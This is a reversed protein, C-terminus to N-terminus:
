VTLGPDGASEPAGRRPLWSPMPEAPRDDFDREGTFRRRQERFYPEDPELAIAEDITDLAREEEGLQFQLEALTDLINPDERHTEGVAREALHLAVRRLAPTADEAIAITWAMYNLDVATIGPLNALRETQQALYEDRSGVQLGATVVALATVGAATAALGGVWAPTRRVRPAPGTVLATALAGAVFGGAHAAGSVMPVLSILANALLLIWLTRRPVRWWAPLDAARRYDLWLIGGVLGFAIGSAGVVWSQGMAGAAAMAGVGSAVMVCVTRATGLPREVFGGLLVIAIGNFFLHLPFKPAAHLLNATFIRWWDGDAFLPASMHGVTDVAPGVALQLAFGVLCLLALGWTARLSSREQGVREIEAMDALRAAGDPRAAIEELIARALREPASEDVFLRRPLLYVSRRTGLWLARISCAVHTVDDIPTYARGRGAPTAPHHLGHADLVVLGDKRLRFSRGVGDTRGGIM